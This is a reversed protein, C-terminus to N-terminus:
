SHFALHQQNKSTGLCDRLWDLAKRGSTIMEESSCPKNNPQNVRLTQWGWVGECYFGISCLPVSVRFVSMTILCDSLRSTSYLCGHVHFLRGGLVFGSIQFPSHFGSARFLDSSLNFVSHATHPLDVHKAEKKAQLEIRNVPHWTFMRVWTRGVAAARFRQFWFEAKGYACEVLASFMDDFSHVGVQSM